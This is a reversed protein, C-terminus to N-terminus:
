QSSSLQDPRGQPRRHQRVMMLGVCGMCISSLFLFVLPVALAWWSDNARWTPNSYTEQANGGASVMTVKGNWVEASVLQGPEFTVQTPYAPLDAYVERGDSFQLRLWTEAGPSGDAHKGEGRETIVAERTQRCPSDTQALCVPATQYSTARERDPAGIALAIPLAAIALVALFGFGPFGLLNKWTFGSTEPALASRAGLIESSAEDVTAGCAAAAQLLLPGWEEGRKFRGIEVPVRHGARDRVFVTGRAGYGITNDKWRISELQNLDVDRSWPGLTSRLRARSFRLRRMTIWAGLGLAIVLLWVTQLALRPGNVVLIALWTAGGAGAALLEGYRAPTAVQEVDDHLADARSV